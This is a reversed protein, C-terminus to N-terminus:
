SVPLLFTNMNIDTGSGLTHRSQNQEQTWMRGDRKGSMMKGGSEEGRVGDGYEICSTGLPFKPSQSQVLGTTRLSSCSDFNVPPSILDYIAAGGGMGLTEMESSRPRLRLIQMELLNGTLSAAAPGSVVHQLNSPWLIIGSFGVPALEWARKQLKSDKVPVMWTVHIM